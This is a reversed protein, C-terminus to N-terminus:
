VLRARRRLALGGLGALALAGAAALGPGSPGTRALGGPTPTNQRPATRAVDTEDDDTPVYSGPNGANGDSHCGPDAADALTDEPDANDRGDSCEPLDTEDDDTPVYSGPNGADGDSHCGPDAADAVTDEPDANDVGDACEALAGCAIGSAEAHGIVVRALPDEGLAALVTVVLADVTVGSATVNVVNRQVDVVANLGTQELLDGILDVIDQVPGNLPIPTGAVRLDIIESNGTYTVTTGACVAAAESRVAAATLLSVDPGVTDLLVDLGEVLSVARANYPGAAPQAEVTLQSPLDSDGHVSASATLTGSVAVPDAPIDVLTETDDGIATVASQPTPPVVTNGAAQVTAGFASASGGSAPDATAPPALGVVVTAVLALTGAIMRKM